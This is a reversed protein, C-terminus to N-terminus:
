AVGGITVHIAGNQCTVASGSPLPRAMLNGSQDSITLSLAPFSRAPDTIILTPDSQKRETEESDALRFCHPFDNCNDTPPLNPRLNESHQM